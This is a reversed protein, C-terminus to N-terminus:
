RFMDRTFKFERRMCESGVEEAVCKLWKKRKSGKFNKKRKSGGGVQELCEAESKYEDSLTEDNQRSM